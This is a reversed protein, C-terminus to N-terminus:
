CVGYTFKASSTKTSTGTKTTVTVYVITGPLAFPPAVILSSGLMTVVTASRSGFRVTASSTLHTGDIAVQDTSSNATNVCESSPFIATVTPTSTVTPTAPGHQAGLGWLRLAALLGVIAFGAQLHYKWLSQWQTSVPFTNVYYDNWSEYGTPPSEGMDIRQKIAKATNTSKKMYSSFGWYSPDGSKRSTNYRRYFRVWNIAFGAALVLCAYAVIRYADNATALLAPNIARYVGSFM